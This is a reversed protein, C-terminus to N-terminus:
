LVGKTSLVGQIRGDIKVALALARGFAKFIAECCHHLNNGD